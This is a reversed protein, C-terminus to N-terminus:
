GTNGNRSATLRINGLIPRLYCLSLLVVMSLSHCILSCSAINLYGYIKLLKNIDKKYAIAQSSASTDTLLCNGKFSIENLRFQSKSGLLHRKKTKFFKM